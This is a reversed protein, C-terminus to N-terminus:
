LGAGRSLIAESKREEPRYNADTDERGKKEPFRKRPASQRMRLGKVDDTEDEKHKPQDDAPDSDDMEAAEEGNVDGNGLIVLEDSGTGIAVDAMRGVGARQQDEEAESKAHQVDKERAATKRGM